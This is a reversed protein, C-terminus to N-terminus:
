ATAEEAVQGEHAVWMLTAGAIAAPMAILNFLPVMLALYALGGFGLSSARHQRVWRLTSRWDVRNNDAPYDLYQIAVMWLNFLLWLPTAVLNVGPILSLVLLAISRPLFYGAKRLERLVTRPVLALFENLTFAPFRDEGGRAIVEVKEALLSNFPAAILNALLSFTFFVALLLALIFLPWLLYQMFGLWQPVSPALEALWGSFRQVAFGILGAFVLLNLALPVLVFRRLGPRFLIRLGQRFFQAGSLSQSTM